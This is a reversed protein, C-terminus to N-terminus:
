SHAARRDRVRQIRREERRRERAQQDGTNVEDVSRLDALFRRIRLGTKHRIYTDYVDDAAAHVAVHLGKIVDRDSITGDAADEEFFLDLDKLIDQTRDAEPRIPEAEPRAKPRAEPGVPETLQGQAAPTLPAAPDSCAPDPPLPKTDPAPALPLPPLCRDVFIFKEDRHPRRPLANEAARYVSVPQPVRKTAQNTKEALGADHRPSKDQKYIRAEMQDLRRSAEDFAREMSSTTSAAHKAAYPLSPVSSATTGPSVADAQPRAKGSDVENKGKSPSSDLHTTPYRYDIYELSSEREEKITEIRESGLRPQRSRATGRRGGLSNPAQPQRERSSSGRHIEPLLPCEDSQECEAASLAVCPAKKATITNEPRRAPKRFTVQPTVHQPSQGTEPQRQDSDIYINPDPLPKRGTNFEVQGSRSPKAELPRTTQHRTGDDKVPSKKCFWFIGRCMRPEPTGKSRTKLSSSDEFIHIAHGDPPTFQVIDGSTTSSTSSSSRAENFQGDLEGASLQPHRYRLHDKKPSSPFGTVERAPSREQQDASTVALGAARFEDRYPLLPKVTHFSPKSESVTPTVVPAKGAAGAADAYKELERTFRRLARNQSSTRSPIELPNLTETVPEGATLSCLRLQQTLARSM